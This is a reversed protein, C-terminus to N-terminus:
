ANSRKKEVIHVDLPYTGTPEIPMPQDLEHVFVQLMWTGSDAVAPIGPIHAIVRHTTNEMTFDVSQDILVKGSPTVVKIVQKFAKNADGESTRWLTFISWRMPLLIPEKAPAPEVDLREFAVGIEQLLAVLTPNNEDQSIIVKECPAFVLLQPM